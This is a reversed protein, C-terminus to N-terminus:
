EDLKGVQVKYNGPRSLDFLKTVVIEDRVSEGSNLPIYSGSVVVVSTEGPADEGTRIKKHYKTEAPSSGDANRVNAEFGALEARGSGNVKYVQIGFNFLV